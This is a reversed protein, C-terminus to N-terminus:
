LDIPLVGAVIEATLAPWRRVAEDWALQASRPAAQAVRSLEDETLGRLLPELPYIKGDHEVVSVPKAPGAYSSPTPVARLQRPFYIVNGTDTM